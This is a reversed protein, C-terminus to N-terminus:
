IADLRSQRIANGQAFPDQASESMHLYDPTVQRISPCGLLALTTEIEGRLIRLVDTVGVQGRAALGYLLARGLLVGRAGRAFAKVVDAGRRIGSDILVPAKVREVVKPLVDVPACVDDLQRGGHNSLIIGDVGTEVCRKADAVNLIGKVILTHPWADRLAKLDDWSFSADMQRKMLAAQANVDKADVSAFNALQPFGHFVQQLSWSPHLACDIIIKPSYRFPISFGSRRDRERNGNVPVDVTLILTRYGASLARQVLQHALQRQVVYLQFWLEGGAKDAVEEITANSATSLAFPINAEAAARALALDGDAWLAGNLGTPAVILPLAHIHGFLEITLDRRSVDTLRHPNFQIREFSDRNRKLGRESEAGGELYDFVMKPLRRRALRGYDEVNLPKDM